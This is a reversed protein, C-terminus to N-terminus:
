EMAAKGTAGLVCRGFLLLSSLADDADYNVGRDQGCGMPGM